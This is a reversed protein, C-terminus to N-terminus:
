IRALTKLDKNRREAGKTVNFIERQVTEESDALGGNEPKCIVIIQCLNILEM